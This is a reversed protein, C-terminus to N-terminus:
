VICCVCESNKKRKPIQIIRDRYQMSISKIITSDGHGAFFIQSETLVPIFGSCQLSFCKINQIKGFSSVNIFIKDDGNDIIELDLEQYLDSSKSHEPIQNQKIFNFKNTRPNVSGYVIFLGRLHVDKLIKIVPTESTIENIVRSFIYFCSHLSLKIRLKIEIALCRLLIECPYKILKDKLELGEEKLQDSLSTWLGHIFCYYDYDGEEYFERSQWASINANENYFLQRLLYTNKLYSDEYLWDNYLNSQLKLCKGLQEQSKDTIRDNIEAM